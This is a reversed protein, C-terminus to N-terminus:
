ICNSARPAVVRNVQVLPTPNAPTAILERVNDYHQLAPDAQLLKRKM